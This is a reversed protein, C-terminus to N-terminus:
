FTTNIKSNLYLEICVCKIKFGRISMLRKYRPATMRCYSMVPLMKNHTATSPGNCPLCKVQIKLSLRVHIKVVENNLTIADLDAMMNSVEPLLQNKTAVLDVKDVENKLMKRWNTKDNPM